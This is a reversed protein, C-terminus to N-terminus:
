FHKKLEQKNQLMAADAREFVATVNRDDQFRASGVAMVVRGDELNERNAKQFEALLKDLNDYDSREAVVVFAGGNMRFVPSHSFIKCILSCGQRIYTDGAEMGRSDNVSKLGNIDFVVLAFDTISGDAIRQNMHADMDVFAHRNKVGTLSDINAENRAAMLKRAQEQERKVQADINTIGVLYRLKDDENIQVVKLHCWTPKMRIMLRYNLSFEGNERIKKEVNEPTFEKRFMSLDEEYVYKSGLALSKRYFDTGVKMLGLKGYLESSTYEVYHETEPDVTYITIYEGSLAAIRSYVQREEKMREQDERAKMQADVNSVAIILDSRKEQLRVAKMNMWVPVGHRLQRYVLTFSGDKDIASLIKERTFAYLFEDLDERHIVREADERASEFFDDGHREETLNEDQENPSYEVYQDTDLNVCFMYAYDSSLARAVHTYNMVPNSEKHDVFDLLVVALAAVKTVPNEAIRRIFLHIVDGDPTREDMIVRKGDRACQRSARMFDSGPGTVHDSYEVFEKDQLISFHNRIFERHPKNNRLVRQGTEGAEVIVMPMTNFYNRFGSEDEATITLDYLSVRGLASFYESEEPNEFGIQIGKRNRELMEEFPIPKCYYYGQLKAAGVEKLFEMQEKTEVGEVVTEIGLAQAMRILETLIIRSKEGKDFQRMFVMDLKLVDFQIQQLIDPSSYGSGYDDMWVSFGLAQFRSIEEKMYELDNGISSETIEITIMKREVGADDVRRRVEEVMDCADFDTRSLNISVPVLFLGKAKQDRFKNLVQELVYLDLRYIIRANELIPIFDAPSMFGKEPDIWRALAEEDCVKGNASRVIPQYYVKIWGDTLARDFNEIIHQRKEMQQLMEVNYYKYYSAYSNKNHDCAMKARDCATGASVAQISDLYVGIRIPLSNGGNLKKSKELLQDLVKPLGEAKAVAAFHDGALRSCNENSFTDSLLQALARLLKDGEAISYKRNFRKMGNLDIFLMAPDEGDSLLSKRANEALEFFYFMTPLGTLHDYNVKHAMTKESIHRSLSLNVSSGPDAEAPLYPGEDSYWVVAVRKGEGKEVHKGHAHIVRYEDGVKVRYVVSYIGGEKAFRIAAEEADAVDDPHTDRYMDHDMLYYAAERDTYHFQELFGASLVLTKVRGDIFQYIAFPISSQEYLKLEADDYRFEKLVFGRKQACNCLTVHIIMMGHHLYNNLWSPLGPM